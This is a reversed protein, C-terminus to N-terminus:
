GTDPYPSPQIVENLLCEGNQHLRGTVIAPLLKYWLIFNDELFNIWRWKFSPLNLNDEWRTKIIFLKSWKPLLQQM